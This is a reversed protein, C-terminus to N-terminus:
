QTGSNTKRRRKPPGQAIRSVANVVKRWPIKGDDEFLFMEGDCWDSYRWRALVALRELREIAGVPTSNDVTAALERLRADLSIPTGDAMLFSLRSMGRWYGRRLWAVEVANAEASPLVIVANLSGLEGCMEDRLSVVEAIRQCRQHMMAASEFDMDASLRDRSSEAPGALSRGSTRLFEAVREVEGRYEEVGVAQQCPRLCKGMEGYICGPHEPFPALDDQCRRLQFLDLFGAEFHVASARSRFPGFYVAPARGIRHTIQTRPFTNSLILKVWAPLRLRIESRYDSGLFRRALEWVLMQGELRSGTLQYEVRPAAIGDTIVMRILRRRLVNTRALFPKGKAQPWLMFVAPKNPLAEIRARNESADSGLELEIM